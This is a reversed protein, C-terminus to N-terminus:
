PSFDYGQKVVFELRFLKGMDTGERKPIEAVGKAGNM